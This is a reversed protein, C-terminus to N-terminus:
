FHNKKFWLELAEIFIEQGSKEMEYRARNLKKYTDPEVKVSMTKSRHGARERGSKLKEQVLEGM